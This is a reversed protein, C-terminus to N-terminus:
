EKNCESVTHQCEEYDNKPSKIGFMTELVSDDFGCSKKGLYDMLPRRILLPQKVMTELAVKENFTMPDIVGGKVMPAKENFWKNVPLDGFFPRLEEPTWPYELLSKVELKFGKSELLKKQRANGGCGTKEFFIVTSM